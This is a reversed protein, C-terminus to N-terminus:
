QMGQAPAQRQSEIFKIIKNKTSKNLSSSEVIVDPPVPLGKEIMGMVELYNGARASEAYVGEGVAVDYRAMNKDNLIEDIVKMANLKAQPTMQLKIKGNELIPMPEAIGAGTNPDISQRMQMVPEGFNELLWADGMVAAVKEVDYVEPLQSLIFKALIRKTRGYNDFIKQVMVLGQKQRLMIARGSSSSEQMALMDANIGSAEKMEMTRENALQAHAVPFPNPTIKSPALKGANHKLMIGASSGFKRYTEEQEASLTGEEYQWGSNATQNVHRLEQTRRKNYDRNLDKMGRAIGQVLYEQNPINATSRYVFFPIIPYSPWRPYSWSRVDGMVDNGVISRVWIEPVYRYKVMVSDPEVANRLAAFQEVDDTEAIDTMLRKRAKDIVVPKKVYKKYFYELLDYRESYDYQDSAARDGNAPYDVGQKHVEARLNNWSIIDIKKAVMNEIMEQKDPFLEIIQDRTLGASFKCVYPADSLDYEKFGPCPFISDSSVKNFKLDPNILDNSYDLYPEIYCEGAMLGEEFQEGTKYEVESNQTTDKLLSTVVDAKIGDEEGKPFAKSDSRNQAEIGTLLFVNPRIKNITLPRVGVNMLKDFDDNDWQNGLSFEIDERQAELLKKKAEYAKRFDSLTKAALDEM